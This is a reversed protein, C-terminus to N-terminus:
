GCDGARDRQQPLRVPERQQPDRRGVQGAPAAQLTAARSVVTVPATGSSRCAYRSASSRIAAASRVPPRPRSCVM